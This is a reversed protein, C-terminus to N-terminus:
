EDTNPSMKSILLLVNYTLAALLAVSRARALGRVPIQDLGRWTRLDANVTEAVAARQKYIEKSKPEAMRLRWAAVSASDHPKPQYPDVGEKKAPRPPAFLSVGRRASDEITEKNGYAGDALVECPLTGTRKQMEDLSPPLQRDDGGSNSVRVAVIARGTVATTIQVNYAPRFGGDAMRMVRAEPDTTSVRVEAPNSHNGKSRLKSARAEPLQKLAEQIREEREEAARKIAAEHRSRGESDHADQTVKRIHDGAERLCRKLSKERRFSAAGASARVKMGDHAVRTLEVLGNHLMVGLIQSMLDDLAEQHAVRFDSLTHYNVHVGGCIWRYANHAECLRELERASGVGESIGYLWLTLLIKPDIAPRGANDGRARIAEELKSLDLSEVMRWISRAQHDAELIGDLDVPLLRVQHRDARMLRAEGQPERRKKPAKADDSADGFLDKTGM